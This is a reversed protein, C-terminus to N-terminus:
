LCRNARRSATETIDDPTYEYEDWNFSEPFQAAFELLDTFEKSNFNCEGTSWNVFDNM